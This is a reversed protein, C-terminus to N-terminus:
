DEEEGEDEDRKIPLNDRIQKAGSAAIGVGAAKVIPDPFLTLVAGALTDVSGNIVNELREKEERTLREQEERERAEQAERELGEAGEEEDSQYPCLFTGPNINQHIRASCFRHSISSFEKLKELFLDPSKFNESKKLFSNLFFDLVTKERFNIQRMIRLTEEALYDEKVQEQPSAFLTSGCFLILFFLKKVKNGGQCERALTIDFM